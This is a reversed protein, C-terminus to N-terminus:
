LCGRLAIALERATQFRDGPNTETVKLIVRRLAPSIMPLQQLDLLNGQYDKKFFRLPSKGTLLFVLSPGIAYLDSQTLPRGQSQEPACYGEAGIRTGSPMGVEKVAGFDIVVIRQSVNKVLLNGPKIDRHIVPVSRNHLYDLVECTQIMWAIAMRTSVPGQQRVLKELNQGHILEMVLYKRGAEFFSDYFQPIGPHNLTKLVTAEREFLERAKPIRAMDANMEKVVCLGAEAQKAAPITRDAVWALYTTGMGGRGLVKLIQYQRITQEVQLPQGCHICFLNGPGNGEHSCGSARSPPSSAMQSGPKAPLVPLQPSASNGTRVGDPLRQIQLLPGDLALQLIVLEPLAMPEQIPTAKLYTGNSSLNVLQWGSGTDTKEGRRLELHYRSVVPYNLVIHNDPARGVRVLDEQEFRWQKLPTHLQPHLLTLIVM